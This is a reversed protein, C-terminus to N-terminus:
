QFIGQVKAQIKDFTGGRPVLDSSGYAGTLYSTPDNSLVLNIAQGKQQQWLLALQVMNLASLDTTLNNRVATAVASFKKPNLLIDTSMVKQRVLNIVEQQRAARGFDNGCTGKRCRVYELARAGDMHQLGPEIDLGCAKFQNDACPYETDVLRATVNVDIGGVGDVVDKLGTFDTTVVYNIPIGLTTSVVQRALDSGGLANAANIKNYGYGPINVRLDRPVSIQAVRKGSTDFSVVLNTDSLDQGSHGPDGVGLILVNTRGSGDTNLANLSFPHKSISALSQAAYIVLVIIAITVLLVVSIVIKKWGFHRRRPKRPQGVQDNEDLSKLFEDSSPM